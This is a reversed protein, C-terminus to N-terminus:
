PYKEYSQNAIQHVLVNKSWGFKRTMRIYLKRELPDSCGMIVVNHSWGIERMLPALKTERSIGLFFSKNAM